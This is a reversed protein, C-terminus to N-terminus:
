HTFRVIGSNWLVTLDEEAITFGAQTIMENM